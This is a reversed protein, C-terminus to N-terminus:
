PGVDDTAEKQFRLMFLAFQDLGFPFRKVPVWGALCSCFAAPWPVRGQLLDVSLSFRGSSSTLSLPLVLALLLAKERAVIYDMKYAEFDLIMELSIGSCTMRCIYSANM